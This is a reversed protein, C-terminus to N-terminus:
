FTLQEIDKQIHDLVNKQDSLSREIFYTLDDRSAEIVVMPCEKVIPNYSVFYVTELEDIVVFYQVVQWFYETPIRNTKWIELHNVVGPSKIEVGAYYKWALEPGIDVQKQILRDPSLAINEYDERICMGVEKLDLKYKNSFMEAAKPELRHGRDRPDESEDDFYNLQEALLRYYEKKMSSTFKEEYLDQPLLDEIQRQSLDNIEKKYSDLYAKIAKKRDKEDEVSEFEKNAEKTKESLLYNIAETKSIIKDVLVNKVRSSSSKGKKAEFWKESNQELDLIIM